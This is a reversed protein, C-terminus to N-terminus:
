WTRSKYFSELVGNEFNHRVALIILFLIVSIIKRDPGYTDNFDGFSKTIRANQFYIDSMISDIINCVKEGQEKVGIGVRGIKTILPPIQPNVVDEIMKNVEHYREIGNRAVLVVEEKIIDEIAEVYPIIDPLQFSDFRIYHM